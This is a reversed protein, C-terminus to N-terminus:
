FCVAKLEEMQDYTLEVSIENRRLFPFVWAPGPGDYMRKEVANNGDELPNNILDSELAGILSETMEETRSDAAGWNFCHVAAPYPPIEVLTVDDNLPVPTANVNNYEKPLIFQMYGDESTVVPTTMDIEVSTVVPTTMDIEVGVPTTMPIDIAGVNQPDGGVGIYAALTSFADNDDITMAAVRTETYNRIEYHFDDMVVKCTVDYAPEEINVLNRM